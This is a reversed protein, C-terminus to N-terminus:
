LLKDSNEILFEEKLNAFNLFKKLKKWYINFVIM